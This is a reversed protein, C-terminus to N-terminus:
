KPGYYLLTQRRFLALRFCWFTETLVDVFMGELPKDIIRSVRVTRTFM